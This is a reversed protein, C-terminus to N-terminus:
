VAVPLGSMEPMRGPTGPVMPMGQTSQMPAPEPMPTGPLGPGAPAGANIPLTNEGPVPEAPAAMFMSLKQMIRQTIWSRVEPSKVFDERQRRRIERRSNPFGFYEGLMTEHSIAGQGWAELGARQIAIERMPHAAKIEIGVNYYGNIDSPGLSIWTRKERDQDRYDAGVVYVPEGILNDSEICWLRYEAAQEYARATNQLIPDFISRAAENLVNIAAYPQEGSQAVGKLIPPLSGTERIIQLYIDVIYRLTQSVEPSPVWKLEASTRVFEGPKYALAGSPQMDMPKGEADLDPEPLGEASEAPEVLQGMPFGGVYGVNLAITLLLDLQEIMDLLPDVLSEYARLPDRSSGSLGPIEFVPPRHYGHEEQKLILGDAYYTVYHRDYHYRFDVTGWGTSPFRYTDIPLGEGLSGRELKGDRYGLGYRKGVELRERRISIVVERIGEGDKFFYVSRPDLDTEHWPLPMTRKLLDLRRAVEKETEKHFRGTQQNLAKRPERQGARVDKHELVAQDYLDWSQPTFECWLVALGFKVADHILNRFTTRGSQKELRLMAANTWEEIKDAREQAKPGEPDLPHMTSSPYGETLLAIARRVLDALIPVKVAKIFKNYPPPIKVVHERALLQEIRDWKAAVPAYRMRGEEILAAIYAASPPTPM